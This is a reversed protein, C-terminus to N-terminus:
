IFLPLMGKMRKIVLFELFIFYDSFLYFVFYIHKLKEIFNRM